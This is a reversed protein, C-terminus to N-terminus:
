TAQRSELTKEGLLYQLLARLRAPQLPQALHGHVAVGTQHAPNPPTGLLILIPTAAQGAGYCASAATYGRHDCILVEPQDTLAIRLAADDVAHTVRCGWGELLNCLSVGAADNRCGVLVDAHIDFNGPRTPKDVTRSRVAPLTRPLVIAFVSGRGSSSRVAIRHDLMKGLRAVIALGLGLGKHADREPNDIQYFEQFILSLQEAAIGLGSDRVEIRWDSGCRRVGVLINGEKTYRVANSILNGLMRELLHADSEAWAATPIHRLHLGKAHAGHQHMAVVREILHELAFSELRPVVDGLDLRSIDLLLNLQENMADIATSIQQLLRRQTLNITHQEFEAAFLSLAHLPQRLDHSAAALFRSKALSIREVEDKKERLEATAETIRSELRDRGTLLATAMENIGTELSRLTNSPHPTVRADLNGIQIKTVTEQLALIPETVDRSLRRALLVGAALAALAFLVTVVLIERKRAVVEARSMELTVSGLLEAPRESADKSTVFPDEFGAVVSRIKAHFFIAEGDESSGEWGDILENPTDPFRHNGASALRSGQRDYFVVASVDPEQAEIQALRHLETRNGSFAGYEAAPGLQRVLAAGRSHLADDVDAYRLLLFYIALSLAIMAAPMLAVFLVRQKIGWNKM